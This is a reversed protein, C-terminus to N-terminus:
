MSIRTWSHHSRAFENSFSVLKLNTGACCTDACNCMDNSGYVGVQTLNPSQWAKSVHITKRSAVSVTKMTSVEGKTKWHIRPEALLLLCLLVLIDFGWNLKRIQASYAM